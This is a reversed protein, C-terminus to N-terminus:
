TSGPASAPLTRKSRAAWSKRSAVSGAPAHGGQQRSIPGPVLAAGLYSTLLAISAADASLFIQATAYALGDRLVADLLVLEAATRNRGVAITLAGDASAWQRPSPASLDCLGAVFAVFNEAEQRWPDFRVRCAARLRSTEVVVVAETRAGTSAVSGLETFVLRATPGGLTVGEIDHSNEPM